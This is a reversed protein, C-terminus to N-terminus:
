SPRVARAPRRRRSSPWAMASVFCSRSPRADGSLTTAAAAVAAVAQDIEAPHQLPLSLRRQRAPNASAHPRPHRLPLRRHKSEATSSRRPHRPRPLSTSRPWRARVPRPARLDGPRPHRRARRTGPCWSTNWAAVRDMAHKVASRAIPKGTGFYPPGPLSRPGCCGCPRASAVRRPHQREPPTGLCRTARGPRPCGGKPDHRRRVSRCSSALHRQRLVGVGSPALMKHFSDALYDADLAQLRRPDPGAQATSWRPAGSGGAPPVRQRRWRRRGGAPASPLEVGRHLWWCHATSRSALHDLDLEGTVPDFRALRYDARRGLRPLIERCMAYWPVYNSNHEMATTVVNDGDRFETLLSYMV